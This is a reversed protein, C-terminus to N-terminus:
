MQLGGVKRRMILRANSSSMLRTLFQVIGKLCTDYKNM